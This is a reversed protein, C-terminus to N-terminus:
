SRRSSAFIGERQPRDSPRSPSTVVAISCADTSSVARARERPPARRTTPTSPSPRTARSSTARGRRRASTLTPSAFPSTPATAGTASIAPASAGRPM